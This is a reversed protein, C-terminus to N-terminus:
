YGLWALVDSGYVLDSVHSVAVTEGTGSEIISRRSADYHADFGHNEIERIAEYVTVESEIAEEYNM